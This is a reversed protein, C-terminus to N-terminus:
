ADAAVRLFDAEARKVNAVLRRYDAPDLAERREVYALLAERADNM